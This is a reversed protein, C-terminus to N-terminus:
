LAEKVAMWLADALEEAEYLIHDCDEGIADIIAIKRYCEGRTESKSDWVTFHVFAKREALLELMQGTSYLPLCDKINIYCAEYGGNHDGMDGFESPMTYEGICSEIHKESNYFWDGEQPIWQEKLRKQQEPTLQQLDEVTIRRKM